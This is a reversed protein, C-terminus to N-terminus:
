CNDPFCVFARFVSLLQVYRFRVARIYHHASTVPQTTSLRCLRYGEALKEDSKVNDGSVTTVLHVVTFCFMTPLVLGASHMCIIM